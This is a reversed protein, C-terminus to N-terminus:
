NRFDSFYNPFPALLPKLKYTYQEEVTIVCEKKISGSKAILTTTGSTLGTVKVGSDSEDSLKIYGLSTVSYSINKGKADLTTTEDVKLQLTSPLDLSDESETNQSNEQDNQKGTQSQDTNQNQENSNNPSSNNSSSSSNTGSNKSSDTNSSSSTSNGSNTDSSNGSSGSSDTTSTSTSGSSSDNGDTSGSNNSTTNNYNSVKVKITKRKGKTKGNIATVGFVYTKSYPKFCTYTSTKVTAIRKYM